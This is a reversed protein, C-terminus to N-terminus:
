QRTIAPPFLGYFEPTAAFLGSVEVVLISRHEKVYDPSHGDYFRADRALLAYGVAVGECKMISAQEGCEGVSIRM